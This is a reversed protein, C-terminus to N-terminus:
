LAQQAHQANWQLQLDLAISEVERLVERMKELRAIHEARAKEFSGEGVYLDHKYQDCKHPAPLAAIAERISHAARHYHVLLDHGSGNLLIFPAQPKQPDSM